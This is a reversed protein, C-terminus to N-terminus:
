YISINGYSIAMFGVMMIYQWKGYSGHITYISVNPTYQHYINGYIGYMSGIPYIAMQCTVVLFGRACAENREGSALGLNAREFRRVGLLSPGRPSIHTTRGTTTVELFMAHFCFCGVHINSWWLAKKELASSLRVLGTELESSKHNQSTQPQFSWPSWSSYWCNCGQPWTPEILWQTLLFKTSKFHEPM